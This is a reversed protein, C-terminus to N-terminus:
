SLSKEFFLASTFPAKLFPFVLWSNGVHFGWPYGVCIPVVASTFIKMELVVCDLESAAWVQSWLGMLLLSGRDWWDLNITLLFELTSFPPPPSLERSAGGEVRPGKGWEPEAPIKNSNSWKGRLRSRVAGSFGQWCFVYTAWYLRTM